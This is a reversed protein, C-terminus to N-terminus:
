LLISLCVSRHPTLQGVDTFVIGSRAPPQPGPRPPGPPPVPLGGWMEPQQPHQQRVPVQPQPPRQQQDSATSKRAKGGRFLSRRELSSIVDTTELEDRINYFEFEGSLLDRSVLHDSDDIFSPRAHAAELSSFLVGLLPILTLFSTSKMIM